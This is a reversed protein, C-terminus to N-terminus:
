CLTIDITFTNMEKIEFTLYQEEEKLIKGGCLMNGTLKDGFYEGMQYVDNVGKDGLLTLDSAGFAPGWKATNYYANYSSNKYIRYMGPEKNKFCSRIVCLFAKDDDIFNSFEPTEVKESLFCGFIHGDFETEVITFTNVNGDCKKHFGIGTKEDKNYDYLLKSTLISKKDKLEFIDMIWSTIMDMEKLTLNIINGAFELWKPYFLVVVLWIDNPIDLNLKEQMERIYGSVALDAKTHKATM